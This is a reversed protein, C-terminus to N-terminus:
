KKALRRIMLRTMVLTIMAESSTLLTEDDKSLRRCQTIWQAATLDTPYIHNTKM